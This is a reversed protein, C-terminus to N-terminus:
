HDSGPKASRYRALNILLVSGLIIALGLLQIGTVSEGAFWIGLIVAVVPNVYGYTSVQTAPRVKLLWVYASFAAISGFIILYLTALWSHLPIAHLDVRDLEGSTFIFPIFGIGAGLMQWTSTVATSSIGSHYKSYLSGSTWAISGIMLLFLPFIGGDHFAGSLKEYFLLIVGGFGIVIGAITSATSFNRKWERWDIIVFWLPAASVLIAVLASPLEQEVWIVVGNGIFLMLLGGVIAHKVSEWHFVKEGRLLCWGLLLLGSIMFRIAGLLFPPIDHVAIRIFFYTSGWVLYITAFAIVVLLTSASKPSSNM